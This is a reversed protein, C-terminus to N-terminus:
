TRYLTTKVKQFDSVACSLMTTITMPPDLLSDELINATYLGLLNNLYDLERCEEIRRREIKKQEPCRASFNLIESTM